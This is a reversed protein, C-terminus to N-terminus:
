TDNITSVENRHVIYLTIDNMNGIYITNLRLLFGDKRPKKLKQFAWDIPM